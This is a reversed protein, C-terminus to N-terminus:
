VKLRITEGFPPTQDTTMVWVVPYEPPTDLHPGHGDTLYIFAEPKVHNEECWVFPPIFSTGGHGLTERVKEDGAEELSALEQVRQVRADCDILLVRRPRVDALIGGIEGMYASEEEASISGSTDRCVVVTDAGYGKRGPKLCFPNPDMDIALGYLAASRRDLKAWTEGRAGFIGTMIMRVHDRWDVQPALIEEV